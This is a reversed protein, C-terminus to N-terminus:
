PANALLAADSAGTYQEIWERLTVTRQLREADNPIWCVAALVPTLVSELWSLGATAGLGHKGTQTESFKPAYRAISQFPANLDAPSAQARSEGFDLTAEIHTPTTRSDKKKPPIGFLGAPM